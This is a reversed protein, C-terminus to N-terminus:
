WDLVQRKYVDLHTYSVTYVEYSHEGKPTATQKMQGCRACLELQKGDAECTADRIVISQWAHGLSDVYDRKEIKGCETCLDPNIEYKGDGESIASVPCEAECAGCAICDDSIKYALIHILSLILAAALAVSLGKKM